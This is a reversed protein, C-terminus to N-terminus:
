QVDKRLDWPAGCRCRVHYTIGIVEHDSPENALALVYAGDFKPLDTGCKECHPHKPHQVPLKTIASM